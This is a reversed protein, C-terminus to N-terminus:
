QHLDLRTIAQTRYFLLSHQVVRIPESPPQNSCPRCQYERMSQHNQCLPSEVKSYRYLLILSEANTQPDFTPISRGTPQNISCPRKELGELRNEPDQLVKVLGHTIQGRLEM